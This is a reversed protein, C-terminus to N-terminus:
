ITSFCPLLGTKISAPTTRPLSTTKDGVSTVNGGLDGMWSRWLLTLTRGAYRCIRISLQTFFVVLFSHCQKLSFKHDRESDVKCRIVGNAGFNVLPLPDKPVALPRIVVGMPLGTRSIVQSSSPMSGLTTCMTDPDVQKVYEPIIPRVAPAQQSYQPAQFQAGPTMHPGANSVSMQNFSQNLSGMNNSLQNGPAQPYSYAQQAPPYASHQQSQLPDTMGPAHGQFQPQPLPQQMNQVPPQMYNQQQQGPFQPVGFQQQPPMGNFSSMARLHPGGPFIMPFQVHSRHSSM